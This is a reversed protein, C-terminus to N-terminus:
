EPIKVNPCKEKLFQLLEPVTGKTVSDTPFCMCNGIQDRIFIHERAMEVKKVKAYPFSLQLSGDQYTIEEGFRVTFPPIKGDFQNLQKKYRKAALSRPALIYFVMTAWILLALLLSRVIGSGLYALFSYAGMVAFLIYFVWLKKGFWHRYTERIAEKTSEGHFEFYKNM